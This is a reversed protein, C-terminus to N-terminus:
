RTSKRDATLEAGRFYLTLAVVTFVVALAAVADMLVQDPWFRADPKRFPKKATIGHRRFLAIHGVVLVVILGPLIGAHLAFFRTLTDEFPKGLNGFFFPEFGTFPTNKVLAM